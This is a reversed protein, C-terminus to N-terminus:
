VDMGGLLGFVVGRCRDHWVAWDSSLQSALWLEWDSSHLALQCEERRYHERPLVVVSSDSLEASLHRQDAQGGATNGRHCIDWTDSEHGCLVHLQRCHRRLLDFCVLHSLCLGVDM